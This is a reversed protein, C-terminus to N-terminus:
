YFLTVQWVVVFSQRGAQKGQRLRQRAETNTRIIWCKQMINHVFVIRLVLPVPVVPSPVLLTTTTTTTISLMRVFVTPQDKTRAM